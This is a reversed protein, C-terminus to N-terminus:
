MSKLMSEVCTEILGSRRSMNRVAPTLSPSWYLTDETWSVPSVTSGFSSNCDITSTWSPWIKERRRSSSVESEM